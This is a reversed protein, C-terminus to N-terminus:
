AVPDDPPLESVTTESAYISEIRTLLALLTEPEDYGLISCTARCAQLLSYAALLATPREWADVDLHPGGIRMVDEDDVSSRHETIAASGHVFHSTLRYEAYQNGRGHRDALTKVQGEPDWRRTSAEHRRAYGEVRRRREATHELNKTVDDGRAQMELFIGEIDAIAHLQRGAILSIRRTEDAGAIEALALSDVFLPRCLVAAEQIFGKDLLVRVADFMGRCRDFLLGVEHEHYFREVPTEDGITGAMDSVAQLLELTEDDFV